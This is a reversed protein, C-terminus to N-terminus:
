PGMTSLLLPAPASRSDKEVSAKWSEKTTAGNFSLSDRSVGPVRGLDAYFGEVVGEDHGWQFGCAERYLRRRM